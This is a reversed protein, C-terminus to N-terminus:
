AVAKKGFDDEVRIRAAVWFSPITALIVWLFFHRYGIHDQLWGSWMGPFMLGMAMFGTCIAYHATQHQGRASHLMYLVYATFGFGYGFQEVMVGAQILLLNSPQTYALYLFVLDPLHLALVMPWLWRRLGDRSIVIGGLIGGVSLAAIGFVGYITGFQATSLGLGGVDRADKLFPAVMKVLQAEGFRYLLLFALLRGIGPKRFFSGFTAGFERLLEAVRRAEGPRDADPRPLSLSHCAGLLLMIGALGAIAQSWGQAPSGAREILKGAWLLFLGSAFMASLRYFLTRVGVFLAQRTPDLALMYFGDAAIDHTASIFAILWFFALTWPLMGPQPVHLAVGGLALAMLLQTVWTWRRRTGLIDVFPSWLPKVVWALYLLSTYFANATNSLGLDKYMVLSVTVVIANPLGEAFYLTPIWAWPTLTRKGTENM